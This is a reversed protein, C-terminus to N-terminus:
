TKSKLATLVVACADAVGDVRWAKIINEPTVAVAIVCQEGGVQGCSFQGAAGPKCVTEQPLRFTWFNVRGDSAQRVNEPPGLKTLLPADSKDKFTALYAEIDLASQPRPATAPAAPAAAPPPAVPPPAPPTVLKAAPTAAEALVALALALAIPSM